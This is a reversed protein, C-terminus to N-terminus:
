PDRGGRPAAAGLRGPREEAGPQHRPVDPRRQSEPRPHRGHAPRARPQRHRRAAPRGEGRQRRASPLHRLAERLGAGRAPTPRPPRSATGAGISCAISSRTRRRCARLLRRDARHRGASGVRSASRSVATRYCGPPRRARPSRRWFRRPVKAARSGAGRRDGVPAARSGRAPRELPRGAGRATTSAALLGAAWERMGIPAAADALVSAITALNARPDIVALAGLAHTRPQEPLEGARRGEEPGGADRPVRLRPRRRHGAHGRESADSALLQSPSSAAM